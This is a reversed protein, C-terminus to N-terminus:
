EDAADSTYLLCRHDLYRAMSRAATTEATEDTGGKPATSIRKAQSAFQLSEDQGGRGLSKGRPRAGPADFGGVARPQDARRRPRSVSVAAAPLLREVLRFPLGYLPFAAVYIM